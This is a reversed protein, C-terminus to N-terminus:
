QVHMCVFVYCIEVVLIVILGKAYFNKSHIKSLMTEEISRHYCHKQQYECMAFLLLIKCTYSFKNNAHVAFLFKLQVFLSLKCSSIVIQLM